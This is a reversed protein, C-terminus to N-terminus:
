SAQIMQGTLVVSSVFCIVSQKEVGPFCEWIGLALPHSVQSFVVGKGGGHEDGGSAGRLVSTIQDQLCQSAPGAEVLPLLQQQQIWQSVSTSNLSLWTFCILAPTLHLLPPSLSRKTHARSLRWVCRTFMVPSECQSPIALSLSPHVQPTISWTSCHSNTLTSSILSLLLLFNSNKLLRDTKGDSFFLSLSSRIHITSDIRRQTVRYLLPFLAGVWGSDTDSLM